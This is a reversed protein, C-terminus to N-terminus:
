LTLAILGGAACLIALTTIFRTAAFADVAEIMCRMKFWRGRSGNCRHVHAGLVQLDMPTTDPANSLSATHWRPALSALANM